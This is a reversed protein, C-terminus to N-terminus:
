NSIDHHHLDYRRDQYVKFRLRGANKHEPDASVIEAIRAVALTNEVTKEALNILLHSDGPLDEQQGIIVERQGGDSSEASSAGRQQSHPVFSGDRFTWLMDDMLQAESENETRIFVRHGLLWAKEALRCAFRHISNANTSSLVYFDVKTM